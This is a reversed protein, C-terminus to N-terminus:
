IPTLVHSIVPLIVSTVRVPCSGHSVKLTELTKPLLSFVGRRAKGSPDTDFFCRSAITLHKLQEFQSLNLRLSGTFRYFVTRANRNELSVLCHKVPQLIKAIIESFDSNQPVSIGHRNRQIECTLEKLSPTVRLPNESIQRPDGVVIHFELTKIDYSKSNRAQLDIVKGLPEGYEHYSKFKNFVITHINPWSMISMLESPELGTDSEHFKVTTLRATFKADLMLTHIRKAAKIRTKSSTYDDYLSLSVINPLKLLLGNLFSYADWTSMRGPDWYWALKLKRFLNPLDTHTEILEQFCRIKQCPNTASGFWKIRLELTEYLRPRTILHLHRCTHHLARLSAEDEHLYSLILHHVELPLNLLPM